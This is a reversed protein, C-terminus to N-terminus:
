LRSGCKTPQTIVARCGGGLGGPHVSISGLDGIVIEPSFGTNCQYRHKDKSLRTHRRPLPDVALDLFKIWAAFSRRVAGWM